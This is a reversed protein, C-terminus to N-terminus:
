FAFVFLCFFVNLKDLNGSGEEIVIICMIVIIIIVSLPLYSIAVAPYTGPGRRGTEDTVPIKKRKKKAAGVPHLLELALSPVQAMATVM